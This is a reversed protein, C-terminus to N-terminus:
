ASEREASPLAPCGEGEVVKTDQWNEEMEVSRGPGQWFVIPRGESNEQEDVERQGDDFHFVSYLEVSAINVLRPLSQNHISTQAPDQHHTSERGKETVKVWIV